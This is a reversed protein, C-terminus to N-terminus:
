TPSGNRVASPEDARPSAHDALGMFAVGLNMGGVLSTVVLLTWSWADPSPDLISDAGVGIAMVGLLANPAKTEARMAADVPRQKARKPAALIWVVSGLAVGALV